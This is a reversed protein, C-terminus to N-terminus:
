SSGVQVSVRFEYRGSITGITAEDEQDYGPQGDESDFFPVALTGDIVIAVVSGCPLDTVAAPVVRIGINRLLVVNGDDDVDDVALVRFQPVIEARREFRAIVAGGSGEGSEILQWETMEVPIFVEIAANPNVEVRAVDCIVVGNDRDNQNLDPFRTADFPPEILTGSGTIFEIEQTTGDTFTVLVRMRIRPRFPPELDALAGSRELHSLLREAIEANNIVSIVVHGPANDMTPIGSTGDPDIVNVFGPSFADCGGLGLTIVCVLSACKLVCCVSPNRRTPPWTIGHNVVNGRRSPGILGCKTFM